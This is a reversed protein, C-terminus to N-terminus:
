PCKGILNGNSDPKIDCARNNCCTIPNAPDPPFCPTGSESEGVGCSGTSAGNCNADANFETIECRDCCQVGEVPSVSAGDWCKIGAGSCQVPTTECINKENCTLGKKCVGAYNSAATRGCAEGSEINHRMCYRDQTAPIDETPLCYVQTSGSIYDPCCEGLNTGNYCLNFGVLGTDVCSPNPIPPQCTGSTCRGNCCSLGSACLGVKLDYNCIEGETHKPQFLCYWPSVGDWLEGNPNWPGCMTGTGADCGESNVGNALSWCEQGLGVSTGKSHSIFCGFVLGLFAYIM